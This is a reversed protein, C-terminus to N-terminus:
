RTNIHSRVHVHAPVARLLITSGVNGWTTSTDARVVVETPTSVAVVTHVVIRCTKVRVAAALVLVEHIAHHRAFKQVGMVAVVSAAVRGVVVQVICVGVAKMCIVASNIAPRGGGRHVPLVSSVRSLGSPVLAAAAASLVVVSCLTIVTAAPASTRAVRSHAGLNLTPVASLLLRRRRM